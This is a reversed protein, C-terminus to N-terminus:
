KRKRRGVLTMVGDIFSLPHVPNGPVYLDVPHEDLFRRDIAKTNAFLGGSIADTGVLIIIKPEAIAEYCIRLSEAMNATIAGTIVIGDAHRPSAVFEIGYRSFDFNVNMSAGLEMETSNDGGACVSRLKLSRGFCRTIEARVTDADFVISDPSSATIILANRSNTALHFDNTFKINDPAMRPCENCFICRGLDLALGSPVPAPAPVSRKGKKVPTTSVANTAEGYSLAGSPCMEVCEKALAPSINGCVVARGRFRETLEVEALDPIYQRGHSKLVRLKSIFM